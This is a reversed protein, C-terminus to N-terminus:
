SARWTSPAWCRPACCRAQLCAAARCPLWIPRNARSHHGPSERCLVAPAPAAAGRRRRSCRCGAAACRHAGAAGVGGGGRGPVGRQQPLAPWAPALGSRRHGGRHRAARWPRRQRGQGALGPAAPTAPLPAHALSPAAPSGPRPMRTACPTPARRGPLGRLGLPPLAQRRAGALEGPAGGVKGAREKGAMLHTDAMFRELLAPDMIQPQGHDVMEDLQARRAAPPDIPMRRHCCAALCAGCAAAPQLASRRAAAAHLPPEGPRVAAHEQLRAGRVHAAGQQGAQPHGARDARPPRM